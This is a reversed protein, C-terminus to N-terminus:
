GYNDFAPRAMKVPARELFGNRREGLKMRLYGVPNLDMLGLTPM